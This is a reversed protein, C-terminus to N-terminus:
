KYKNRLRKLEPGTGIIFIHLNKNKLNLLNDLALDINKRRILRSSIVFTDKEKIDPNFEGKKILNPFVVIKGTFNDILDLCSTTM